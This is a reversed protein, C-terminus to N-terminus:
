PRADWRIRHTMLRVYKKVCRAGGEVVVINNPAQLVCIGCLHLEQANAELKFRHSKNTLDLVRFVAVVCEEMLERQCKTRIKERREEKTLKRAENRARHAEERAAAQQRVMREIQTPNLTLDSGLVRAM